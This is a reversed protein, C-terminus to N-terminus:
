INRRKEGYGFAILIKKLLSMKKKPPPIFMKSKDLSKIEEIQKQKILDTQM